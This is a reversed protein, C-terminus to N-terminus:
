RMWGGAMPRYELPAVPGASVRYGQAFQRFADSGNSAWNHVPRESYTDRDEDYARSYNSLAKIGVDCREADFWCSDFVQKTMEIGDMLDGVREVVEIPRVGAAEFMARRSTKMGLSQVNVDHPM